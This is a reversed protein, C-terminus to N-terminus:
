QESEAAAQQQYTQMQEAANDAGEQKDIGLYPFAEEMIDHALGTVLGSEEQNKVNPEDILVYILVQPDDAPAYGIFSLVYNGNGRPLKEATGTKGGILYGPIQTNIGTGYNVVAKTYQRIRDSTQKSVTKKVVTQDATEKLNDSPDRIEKMVHPKYYSGGNILSCFAAAMQTMTVNFNQGFSNTALDAAGMKDAPFLLGSTDGEGPLDINTYEGFGFIHQYRSFDEAGITEAMHMLSVNCSQAIAQEINLVGHGITHHCHIWHDDVHLVGQCEYTEDGKLKGTELGSAVTFPKFTSGPEYTGSVCFNNWIRNMERNKKSASMADLQAKSYVSSLDQPKNPDFVPYSAEALIEGNNPDMVVVATNKSGTKGKRTHSQNFAAIHREVIGQLNADITTVVTCGDVPEKSVSTESSDGGSYGFTRGNLGNLTKNYSAEIGCGGSGGGGVFGIVDCALTDYPYMRQYRQELWLGNLHPHGKEDNYAKEFAKAKKYSIGKKVIKYQSSPSSSLHAKIERVDLKFMEKLFALTPEVDEQNELLAKADLIVDYVMQSTALVTGNRDRIDGRKFEVVRSNYQQQNLVIRTYDDGDRANIVMIRAILTIFALGIGMFLMALKRQMKPTLRKNFRAAKRM